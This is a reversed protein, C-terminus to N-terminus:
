LPGIMGLWEPSLDKDKRAKNWFEDHAESTRGASRSPMYNGLYVPHAGYIRAFTSKDLADPFMLQLYHVQAADAASVSDQDKDAASSKWATGGTTYTGAFVIQGAAVDVTTVDILEKELFVWQKDRVALLSGGRTRFAVAAYRGPPVNLAYVKGHKGVWNSEVFAPATYVDGEAEVRVFQVIVAEL